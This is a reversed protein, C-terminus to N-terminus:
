QRVQMAGGLRDIEWYKTHRKKLQFSLLFVILTIYNKTININM